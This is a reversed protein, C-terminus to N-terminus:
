PPPPDVPPTLNKADGVTLEPFVELDVTNDLDLDVNKRSTEGRRSTTKKDGQKRALEQQKSSWRNYM